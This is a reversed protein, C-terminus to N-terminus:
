EFNIRLGVYRTYAKSIIDFNVYNISM